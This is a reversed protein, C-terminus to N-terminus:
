STQSHGGINCAVYRQAALLVNLWISATHFFVPVHETMVNYTYCWASGSLLVTHRDKTYLYWYWPSPPLITALDAIAIWLLVRNTPTVMHRKLLVRIILLNTILTIVVLIPMITGYVLPAYELPVMKTVNFVDPHLCSLPRTPDDNDSM